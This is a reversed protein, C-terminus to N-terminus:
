SIFSGVGYQLIIVEFGYPNLDMKFRKTVNEANLHRSWLLLPPSIKTLNLKPTFQPYLNKYVTFSSIYTYQLRVSFGRTVLELRTGPMVM